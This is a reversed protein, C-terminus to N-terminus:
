VLPHSTKSQPLPGTPPRSSDELASVTAAGLCFFAGIPIFPVFVNADDVLSGMM